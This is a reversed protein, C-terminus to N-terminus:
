IRIVAFWSSSTEILSPFSIIVPFIHTFSRPTFTSLLNSKVSCTDFIQLFALKFSWASARIEFHKFLSLSRVRIFGENFRLKSVAWKYQHEM